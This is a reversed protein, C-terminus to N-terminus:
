DPRGDSQGASRWPRPDCTQRSGTWLKGFKSWLVNRLTEGLSTSLVRQLEIGSLVAIPQALGEASLPHARVVVEEIVQNTSPQAQLASSIAATLVPLTFTSIMQSAHSRM